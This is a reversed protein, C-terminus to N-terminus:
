KQQIEDILENSKDEAGPHQEGSSKEEEDNGLSKKFGINNFFKHNEESVSPLISNTKQKKNKLSFVQIIIILPLYYNILNVLWALIVDFYLNEMIPNRFAVSIDTCDYDSWNYFSYYITLFTTLIASAMHYGIIKCLDYINEDNKLLNITQKEILNNNVNSNGQSERYLLGWFEEYMDKMNKFYKRTLHFGIFVFFITLVVGSIRIAIWFSGMCAPADKRDFIAYVIILTYFLFIMISLFFVLKKKNDFTIQSENIKLSKKVFYRILLLFVVQRLYTDLLFLSAIYILNSHILNFVVELLIVIFIMIKQKKWTHFTRFHIFLQYFIYLVLLVDLIFTLLLSVVLFFDTDKDEFAKIFNSPLKNM